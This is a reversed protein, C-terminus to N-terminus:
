TIVFSKLKKIFLRYRYVVNGTFFFRSAKWRLRFDIKEVFFVLETNTWIETQKPTTHEQDQPHGGGNHNEITAVVRGAGDVQVATGDYRPSDIIM